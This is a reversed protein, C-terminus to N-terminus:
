YRCDDCQITSTITRYPTYSTGTRWDNYMTTDPKTACGSLVALSVLAALAILIRKM